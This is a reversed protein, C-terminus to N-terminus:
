SRLELEADLASNVRAVILASTARSECIAVFQTEGSMWTVVSSSDSRGGTAIRVDDDFVSSVDLLSSAWGCVDVIDPIRLAPTGEVAITVPGSQDRVFALGRTGPLLTTRLGRKAAAALARDRRAGLAALIEATTFVFRADYSPGRHREFGACPVHSRAIRGIAEVVHTFLATRLGEESIQGTALLAEGLPRGTRRCEALVAEIYSAELPPSRQQQLLASLRRKMGPTVAWCVARAEVLVSGDPGFDLLGVADPALAEISSLLEAAGSLVSADPIVSPAIPGSSQRM